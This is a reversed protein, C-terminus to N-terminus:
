SATMDEFLFYSSLINDDNLFDFKRTLTQRNFKYYNQILQKEFLNNTDINYSVAKWGFFHMSTLKSYSPEAIHVNLSQSQDIFAGRDAAM